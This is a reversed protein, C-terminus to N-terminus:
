RPQNPVNRTCSHEISREVDEEGNEEDVNYHHQGVRQHVTAWLQWACICFSDCLYLVSDCLYLVFRVFVFSLRVFVFRIACICFQTACICFSDCLYLVFRVFLFSTRVFIFSLRFFLFRLVCINFSDCLCLILRAFLFSPRVFLFSLRM